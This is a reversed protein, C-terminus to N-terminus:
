ASTKRNRVGNESTLRPKKTVRAPSAVAVPKPRYEASVTTMCTRKPDFTARRPDDDFVVQLRGTVANREVEKMAAPFWPHYKYPGYYGSLFMATRGEGDPNDPERMKTWGRLMYTGPGTTYTRSPGRNHNNVQFVVAGNRYLNIQAECRRPPDKITWVIEYGDPCELVEQGSLMNKKQTPEEQALCAVPMLLASALFSASLRMKYRLPKSIESSRGLVPVNRGGTV